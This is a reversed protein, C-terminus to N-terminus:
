VPKGDADVVIGGVSWAAELAATFHAPIAQDHIESSWGAWYPGYGPITIYLDIHKPARLREIVLQGAANTALVLGYRKQQFFQGKHIQEATPLPDAVLEVTAERIPKGDPGVVNLEFEQGEEAPAEAAPAQTVAPTTEVSARLHPVAV